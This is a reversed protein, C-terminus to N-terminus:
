GIGFGRNTLRREQKSTLPGTGGGAVVVNISQCIIYSFCDKFSFVKLIDLNPKELVNAKSFFGPLRYSQEWFSDQPFLLLQHIHELLKQEAASGLSCSVCESRNPSYVFFATYRFDWRDKSKHELIQSVVRFLKKNVACRVKVERQVLGSCCTLLTM